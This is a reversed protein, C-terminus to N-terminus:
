RTVPTELHGERDRRDAGRHRSPGGRRHAPVGAQVAGALHRRQRVQDHRQYRHPEGGKRGLDEGRGECRREIHSRDFQRLFPSIPRQRRLLWLRGGPVHGGSCDIHAHRLTRSLPPNYVTVGAARTPDAYAEFGAVAQGRLIGTVVEIGRDEFQEAWDERMPGEDFGTLRECEPGDGAVVLRSVGSWKAAGYCQACPRWNVVLTRPRGALNWTGLRVQALSQAVVEAHAASLNSSLVLDM